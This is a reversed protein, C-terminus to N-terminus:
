DLAHHEHEEASGDFEIASADVHHKLLVARTAAKTAVWKGEDELLLHVMGIHSEGDISWINLQTVARVNPVNALENVLAQYDLSEPVAEMLIKLTGVFKPVAKTMIFGSILLSLLPDLWFWDTVKLVLAVVIVAVWGLLDELMHLSLISENRSTGRSLVYAGAINVAVAIVGLILMGDKHVPTPHLLKPVAEIIVFISGAILIV